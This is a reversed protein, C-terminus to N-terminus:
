TSLKPSRGCIGADYKVSNKKGAREPSNATDRVISIPLIATTAWYAEPVDRIRKRIVEVNGLNCIDVTTVEQLMYL